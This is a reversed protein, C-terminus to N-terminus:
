GSRRTWAARQREPTWGAPIIWVRGVKAAGPIRGKAALKRLGEVSYGARASVQQLTEFKAQM